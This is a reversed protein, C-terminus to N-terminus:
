IPLRRRVVGFKVAVDDALAFELQGRKRFFAVAKKFVDVVIAVVPAERDHDFRELWRERADDIWAKDFPRATARWFVDTSGATIRLEEFCDGIGAVLPM